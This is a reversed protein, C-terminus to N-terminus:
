GRPLYVSSSARWAHWSASCTSWATRRAIPAPRYIGAAHVEDLLGGRDLAIHVICTATDHSWGRTVEQHDPGTDNPNGNAPFQTPSTPSPHKYDLLLIGWTAM